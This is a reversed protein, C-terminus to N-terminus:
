IRIFTKMEYKFCDVSFVKMLLIGFCIKLFFIVFINMIISGVNYIIIIFPVANCLFDLNKTEFIKTCIYLINM